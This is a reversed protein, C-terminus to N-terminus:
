IEFCLGTTLAHVTDSGLRKQMEELGAAGTCHGTYVYKIGEAAIFGCLSDLEGNSLTCIDRGDKAGKIHLGGIYAYVGKNKCAAKVETVINSVGGHSCSNFIVLGKETDFVLSQEHSFDDPLLKEGCCKYLKTREGISELGNSSHPVLYIGDSLQLFGDAEIFRDKYRVVNEPIGIGHLGGNGSMYNGFATKQAYVRLKENRELVEPFGGSHDYHGHSLVCIDASEPAIGLKQANKYFNDTSGADLLIKKDKYEIFLSLGHECVLKNQTTNEILVTIKMKTQVSDSQM